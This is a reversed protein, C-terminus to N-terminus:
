RIEGRSRKRLAAAFCVCIFMLLLGVTGASLSSACGKAPASPDTASEHSGTEAERTQTEPSLTETPAEQTLTDPSLSETTNEGSTGTTVASTQEDGSSEQSEEPNITSIFETGENLPVTLMDFLTIQCDPQYYGSAFFGVTQDAPLSTKLVGSTLVMGSTSNMQGIASGLHGSTSEQDQAANGLCFCNVATSNGTVTGFLGGTHANKGVVNGTSWCNKVESSPGGAYVGILGGANGASASGTLVTVNGTVYCNEVKMNAQAKGVLGGATATGGNRQIKVDAKVFCNKITTDTAFGILGGVWSKKSFISGSAIGLNRITAGMTQGFFGSHWLPENIKWNTVTHGDGDFVGCFSADVYNADSNNGETNGGIPLWGDKDGCDVDTTMRFYTNRYTTLSCVNVALQILDAASGILYPDNETGTGGSFAYGSNAAPVVGDWVSVPDSAPPEAEEASIPICCFAALFIAFLFCLKKM